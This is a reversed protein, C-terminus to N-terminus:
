SASPAPSHEMMADSPAPSHEMMADSPAASHEIMAGSPSPPSSGAPTTCAGVLIALALPIALPTARRAVLRRATM